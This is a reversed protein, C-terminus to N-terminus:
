CLSGYRPLLALKNQALHRQAEQLTHQYLRTYPKISERWTRPAAMAYSRMANLLTPRAFVKLAREIAARYSAVLAQQFLFGNLGDEITDALGGTCTAIPLSGFRQAYMQTLGCPEFRSPMLLFDSGAFIRRSEVENFGIHVGVQGPYRRALQMAQAELQSEGCGMIVLRGGGNVVSSAVDFTLDIGKQQALRSVVAFVPGNGSPLAFKQEIYRTNARKSEWERATFSAILHPDSAPEWSEDIGNVIGHLLGQDYKQRLLGELGCGFQPQTIERAYTQSVTTLQQAYAIGAKMFSLKGYFEMGDIGYAAPPLGLDAGCAADFLGQHALNHITYVTPTTQGRWAMYAPTLGAPWDHAHVLEPRWGLHAKGMALDAAALAFRAFRIHNDPWDRGNADGYPSGEREYLEPCIVLYVLIGDPLTLQGITCKPLGAYGDLHAITTIYGEDGYAEMIQRYGPILVRVDHRTALAKPLAASVDGLGGTKVLGTYEPTVYLIKKRVAAADLTSETVCQAQREQRQPLQVAQPPLQVTQQVTQPMRVPPQAQVIPSGLCAREAATLFSKLTPM